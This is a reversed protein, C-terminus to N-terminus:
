IVGLLHHHKLFRKRWEQHEEDAFVGALVVAALVGGPLLTEMAADIFMSEPEGDQSFPPNLYARNFQKKVTKKIIPSLAVQM